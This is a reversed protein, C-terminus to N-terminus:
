PRIISFLNSTGRLDDRLLYINISFIHRLARDKEGYHTNLYAISLIAMSLSTIVPSRIIQGTARGFGFHFLRRIPLSRYRVRAPNAHFNSVHQSDHGTRFFNENTALRELFIPRKNTFVFRPTPAILDNAIIGFSPISSKAGTCALHGARRYPPQFIPFTKSKRRRRHDQKNVNANFRLPARPTQTM